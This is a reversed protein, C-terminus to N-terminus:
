GIRDRLRYYAVLGQVVPRHFTHFRMPKLPTVPYHADSSDVARQALARGMVTAMAIGRGNYGLGAYVGQALEHLHPLHDATMAVRGTWEFEFAVSRLQPFLSRAAAKLSRTDRERLHDRSPGRTGIVLRGDRDLRFYTVIRGMTAVSQGGPLIQRRLPEALPETAVQVSHLPIVSQRLGPWLADTYANTAIIVREALVHGGPTTLRWGSGHPDMSFVQSSQYLRAGAGNAARALGLCYSLPQINGARRDIWGGGYRLTGTLGAIAGADLEEVSAGRRRWLSVRRAATALESASSAAQIWGTRRAGCDIRHKEILSFVLDASGGVTELLTEALIPGYRDAVEDPDFKFSPIVQGGNRGSAGFGPELAELLVTDVGREALYLAASCGTYGGGIVAVEARQGERLTPFPDVSTATAAWLSRPQGRAETPRDRRLVQAPSRPARGEAVGDSM